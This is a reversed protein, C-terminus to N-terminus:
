EPQFGYYFRPDNQFMLSGKVGGNAVAIKADKPM